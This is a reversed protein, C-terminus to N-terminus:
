VVPAPPLPTPVFPTGRTACAAPDPVFRPESSVASVVRGELYSRFSAEFSAQWPGPSCVPVSVWTTKGPVLPTVSPEGHGPRILVTGQPATAPPSLRFSLRGALGASRSEPWLRIAGSAALWGDYYRGLMQLQLRPKGAPQWLTHTLSSGVIRAGRLRVTAGYGEVLLPGGVPGDATSLTGDRGVRVRESLFSDIAPAGPLLLVRDLSRNWFLQSM